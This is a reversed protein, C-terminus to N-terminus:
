PGDECNVPSQVFPYVLVPQRQGLRYFIGHLLVRLLVQTLQRLLGLALDSAVLLALVILDIMHLLDPGRGKEM